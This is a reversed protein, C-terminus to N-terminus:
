RGSIDSQDLRKKSNYIAPFETMECTGISIRVDALQPLLALASRAKEMDPIDGPFHKATISIGRRDASCDFDIIQPISFLVEEIDSLFLRGSGFDISNRIRGRIKFIRPLVGGCACPSKEIKGIDGTKYRLLPMAKHNFTTVAIQGFGNEDPDLVEFYHDSNRVHYGMKAACECGGAICLETMGYHRFSRSGWATNLRDCIADPVDDASLLMERVRISGCAKGGAPSDAAGAKMDQLQSYRAVAAMQVPIGTIVDPKYEKIKEYADNIDTVPGYIYTDCGLEDMSKRVVDGISGPTGGSMMVMMRDGPKMFTTYAVRIFDLAKYIDEGAFAIKKQGGSTGTTPVTVLRTVEGPRMCLFDNENGALDAESTLPLKEFDDFSKIDEPKIHKLKEQYFSSNEKIYGIVDKLKGLQWDELTKLDLQEPSVGVDAAIKSDIPSKEFM